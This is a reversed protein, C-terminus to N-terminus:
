SRAHWCSSNVVFLFSFLIKIWKWMKFFRGSIAECLFPIQMLITTQAWGFSPARQTTLTCKARVKKSCCEEVGRFLPFSRVGGRFCAFKLVMLSLVLVMQSERFKSRRFGWPVVANVSRGEPGRTQFILIVNHLTCWWTHLLVHVYETFSLAVYFMFVYNYIVM